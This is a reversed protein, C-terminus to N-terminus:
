SSIDELSQRRMADSELWGATPGPSPVNGRIGTGKLGEAWTRALYRVAAKSGSYASFARTTENSDVVGAGDVPPVTGL